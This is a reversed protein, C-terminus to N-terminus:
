QFLTFFSSFSFHLLDLEFNYRVASGPQTKMMVRQTGILSKGLRRLGRIFFVCVCVCVVSVCVVSVYVVCGPGVCVCVCLCIRRLYM